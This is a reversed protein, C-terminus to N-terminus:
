PSTNAASQRNAEPSSRRAPLGPSAERARAGPGPEDLDHRTPRIELAIREMVDEEGHHM